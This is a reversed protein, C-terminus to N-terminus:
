TTGRVYSWAARLAGRVGGVRRFEVLARVLRRSKPGYPFWWPDRDWGFRDVILTRTRTMERLGELGRTRGFGSEGVGGMPLGPAAYHSLTDNVSVGGGRLRRAVRLGRERDGTWVSAFLGYGTGNAAEVAEDVDRVRALPLVPGFTEERMIRMSDDVELLVTPRYVNSAPDTREGGTAVRAGREVADAVQEEIIGLQDPLTIPGVDGDGDSSARLDDVHELVREVFADYVADVVFVRETSLCTQGANYFGGFVVGRAARELEADELVLAPDKGGLELLVPTLTEAAAAMVKRGTAPSGTFVLRDVGAGALAAGTRGDGTVVQALGDPLGADRILDEVHLATFPTAESPKVVAGNGGVLATVVPDMTLIFPYNWPAIVGVVGYPEREVRARKGVLGLWGTGVRDPRLVDLANKRYFDLLDLVVVVESLAESRPKGTEDVITAAVEEMREGLVRHLAKLRRLRDAPALSAWGDQVSRCREVREEVERANRVPVRGLLSGDAPRRIELTPGSRKGTEAGGGPHRSATRESM